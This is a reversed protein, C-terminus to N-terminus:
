GKLQELAQRLEDIGPQRPNIKMVRDLQQQGPAAQGNRAYALGLHLNFLANDPQKKVAEKFLTIASSYVHKHYFAWGLTDASSPNDPLQRRATQAM